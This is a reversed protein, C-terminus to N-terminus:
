EATVVRKKPETLRMILIGVAAFLVMVAAYDLLFFVIPEGFDFFAFLTRRFMYHPFLRKAFAFIGYLSVASSLICVIIGTQRKNNILKKLPTHLHMGAHISMLVFSWYAVMMHIERAAASAGSLPDSVFAYLYKSMLIGSVPQLIMSLLLLMDAVTIVVRRATYRGKFLAPYWKRNLVHHVTFLVLLLTGAVEHFLEGILSYAMLVMLVVTMAIDLTLRTKKSTMDIGLAQFGSPLTMAPM